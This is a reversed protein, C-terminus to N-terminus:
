PIAFACFKSDRSPSLKFVLSREQLLFVFPLPILSVTLGPFALLHDWASTLGRERAVEQAFGYPLNNKRIIRPINQELYLGNLGLTADFM